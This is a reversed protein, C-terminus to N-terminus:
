AEAIKISAKEKIKDEQEETYDKLGSGKSMCNRFFSKMREPINYSFLPYKKMKDLFLPSHANAQFLKWIVTKRRQVRM